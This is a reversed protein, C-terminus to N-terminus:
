RKIIFQELIDETMEEPKLGTKQQYLLIARLDYVPENEPRPVTLAGYDDLSTEMTANM